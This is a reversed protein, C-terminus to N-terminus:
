PSKSLVLAILGFGVITVAPGSWTMLWIRSRARDESMEGDKVREEMSMRFRPGDWCLKAGLLTVLAAGGLWLEHQAMPSLAALPVLGAPLLAVPFVPMPM